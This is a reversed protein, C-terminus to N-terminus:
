KRSSRQMYFFLGLLCGVGTFLSVVFPLESFFDLHNLNIFYHVYLDPYKQLKKSIGIFESAGDSFVKFDNMGEDILVSGRARENSAVIYGGGSIFLIEDPKSNSNLFDS